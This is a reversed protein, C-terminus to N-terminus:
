KQQEPHLKAKLSQVDLILQNLGAITKLDNISFSLRRYRDIKKDLEVCKECMVAARRNMASLMFPPNKNCFRPAQRRDLNKRVTWIEIGDRKAITLTRGTQESVKKAALDAADDDAFEAVFVTSKKGVLRSAERMLKNKTDHRM